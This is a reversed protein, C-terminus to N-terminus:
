ELTSQKCIRFAGYRLVRESNIFGSSTALASKASEREIEITQNTQLIV